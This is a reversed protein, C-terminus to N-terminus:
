SRLDEAGHGAEEFGLVEGLFFYMPANERDGTRHDTLALDCRRDRELGEKAIVFHATHGHRLVQRVEDCLRNRDDAGRVVPAKDAVKRSPPRHDLRSSGRRGGTRRSRDVPRGTRRRARAPARRLGLRCSHARRGREEPLLAAGNQRRHRDSRGVDEDAGGGVSRFLAPVRGPRAPRPHHGAEFYSLFVTTERVAGAAADGETM